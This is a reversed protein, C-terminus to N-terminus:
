LPPTCCSDYYFGFERLKHGLQVNLWDTINSADTSNLNLKEAVYGPYNDSDKTFFYCGRREVGLFLEDKTIFTIIKFQTTNGLNLWYVSPIESINIKEWRPSGKKHENNSMPSLTIINVLSQLRVKEQTM